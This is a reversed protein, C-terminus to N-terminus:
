SNGLKLLGKKNRWMLMIKAVRRKRKSIIVELIKEIPSIMMALTVNFGFRIIPNDANGAPFISEIQYVLFEMLIILTLFTMVKTFFNSENNQNLMTSIIVLSMFFLIEAVFFWSTKWYPPLIKFEVKQVESVQGLGNKARIHLKYEGSPLYTFEIKHDKSWSSWGSTMGELHYQFQVSKEDFYFPAAMSFRLSNSKYDLHIDKLPLVMGNETRV